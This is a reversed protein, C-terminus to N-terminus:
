DLVEKEKFLHTNGMGSVESIALNSGVAQAPCLLM